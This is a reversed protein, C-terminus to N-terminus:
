SFTRFLKSWPIKMSTRAITTATMASSFVKKVMMGWGCTVALPGWGIACVSLWLFIPDLRGHYGICKKLCELAVWAFCFMVNQYFVESQGRVMIRQPPLPLTMVSVSRPLRRPILKPKRREVQELQPRPRQRKPLRTRLQRPSWMKRLWGLACLLKTDHTLCWCPSTFFWTVNSANIASVKHNLKFKWLLNWLM